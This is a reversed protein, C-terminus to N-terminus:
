PPEPIGLERGSEELADVDATPNADALLWFRLPDGLFRAAVQDLREGPQVRHVRSAPLSERLRPLYLVVDGGAASVERRYTPQGFHRSTRDAPRATRDAPGPGSTAGSM